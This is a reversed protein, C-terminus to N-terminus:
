RVNTLCGSDVTGRTEGCLSVGLLPIISMGLQPLVASVGLYPAASSYKIFYFYALRALVYIAHNFKTCLSIASLYVSILEPASAKRIRIKPRQTKLLKYILFLSYMDNKYKSSM